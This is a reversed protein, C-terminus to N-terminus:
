EAASPAPEEESPEPKQVPLGPEQVPPEPEAAPLVTCNVATSQLSGCRFIIGADMSSEPVFGEKLCLCNGSFVFRSSAAGSSDLIEIEEPSIGSESRVGDKYAIRWFSVPVGSTGAQLTLKGPNKIGGAEFRMLEENVFVKVVRKVGNAASIVISCSGELGHVATLVGDPSLNICSSAEGNSSVVGSLDLTFRLSQETADAPLVRAKVVYSEGASLVLKAEEELPFGEVDIYEPLIPLVSVQFNLTIIDGLLGTFVAEIVAPNETPKLGTVVGKEDVSVDSNGSKVTWVVSYQPKVSVPTFSLLAGLDATEGPNLKIDYTGAAISQARGAVTLKARALKGNSSICTITVTGPSKPTIVGARDVDAITTNSSSWRFSSLRADAPSVKVSFNFTKGEALELIAESPELAISEMAKEVKIRAQTEVGNKAAALLITEGVGEGRIVGNEDVTAIGTDETIYSLTKDAVDEPLVKVLASVTEGVAVVYEEQDFELATIVSSVEVEASTCLNEIEATIVATGASVGTIRGSADISVVSPDSSTYIVPSSANVPDLAIRAPLTKGVSVFYKGEAFYISQAPIYEKYVAYITLSKNVPTEFDYTHGSSVWEVFAYGEKVPDAPRAVSEGKKIRVSAVTSGGGTNFSVTYKRHIVLFWLAALVALILVATLIVSVTKKSKHMQMRSM